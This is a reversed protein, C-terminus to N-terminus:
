IVMVRHRLAGRLHGITRALDVSPVQLCLRWFSRKRVSPRRWWLYPLAVLAAPRWRVATAVGLAAVVFAADERRFAWPRWFAEARYGPHEAALRVVNREALGNRVHWWWGRREVEHVAVAESAFGRSWGQDIVTWGLASDEGWWAIDEDFGGAGELAPRRYFINCGEFFPGPGDVIRWLLWDDHGWPDFGAPATTRGQVVGLREDGVLATIGGALWGPAPLCDDDVFALLPAKSSRWGVNRAVAPGGNAATSLCRLPLPSREALRAVTAATDDGSCDDVVVVEFCDPPATQAELAAILGALRDPRRFTPIVVSALM